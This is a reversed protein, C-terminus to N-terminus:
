NKLHSTNGLEIQNTTLDLIGMSKNDELDIRRYAIDSISDFRIAILHNMNEWPKPFLTLSVPNSKNTEGIKSFSEDGVFGVLFNTSNIKQIEFNEYNSNSLTLSFSKPSEIYAATYIGDAFGYVNDPLKNVDKGTELPELARLITFTTVPQINKLEEVNPSPIIQLTGTLSKPKEFEGEIFPLKLTLKSLSYGFPPLVAILILFPIIIWWYAKIKGKLMTFFNDQDKKSAKLQQIKALESVLRKKKESSSM